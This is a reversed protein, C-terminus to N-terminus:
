RTNKNAVFIGYIISAIAKSIFFRKWKGNNFNTEAVADWDFAIVDKFSYFLLSILSIIIFFIFGVKLVNIWFSAKKIKRVFSM